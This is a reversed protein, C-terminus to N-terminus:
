YESPAQSDPCRAAARVGALENAPPAKASGSPAVPESARSAAAKLPLLDPDIELVPGECLVVAREILNQLERVNGPWEYARLHQMTEPALASGLKRSFRSLFFM